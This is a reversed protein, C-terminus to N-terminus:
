KPLDWKLSNFVNNKLLLYIFVPGVLILISLFIFRDFLAVIFTQSASVNVIGASFILLTEKLGISAPTLSLLVSVNSVVSLFLSPLLSIELGFTKFELITMLAVLFLNIVNLLILKFIIGSTKVKNIDNIINIIKNLVPRNGINLKFPFITFTLLIIFLLSFELVIWPSYQNNTFYFLILSFLGFFSSVLFAIFYISGLNSISSSYSFNYNERLYIARMIAGGRFFLLYNGLSTLVSLGFCEKIDLNIGYPKLTYRLLLGNNLFSLIALIFLYIFFRYSVIKIQRFKEINHIFFFILLFITILLMLISVIRKFNKSIM